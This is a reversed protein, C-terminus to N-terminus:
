KCVCIFCDVNGSTFLFDLFFFRLDVLSDGVVDVVVEVAGTLNRRRSCSTFLWLLV